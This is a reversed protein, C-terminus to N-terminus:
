NAAIESYPLFLTVGGWGWGPSNCENRIIDREAYMDGYGVPTDRRHRCGISSLLRRFVQRTAAGESVIRIPRLGWDYFHLACRGLLTVTLM